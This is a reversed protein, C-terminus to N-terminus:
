NYIYDTVYQCLFIYKDLPIVLQTGQGLRHSEPGHSQSGTTPELM